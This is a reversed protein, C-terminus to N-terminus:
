LLIGRLQEAVAQPFNDLETYHGEGVLVYEGHVLHGGRPVEPRDFINKGHQLVITTNALVSGLDLERIGPHHSGARKTIRRHLDTDELKAMEAKWGKRSELLERTYNRATGCFVPPLDAKPHGGRGYCHVVMGTDLHLRRFERIGSLRHGRMYAGIAMALRMPSQFDDDDTTLVLQGTCAKLAANRKGSPYPEQTPVLVAGHSAAVRASEIDNCHHAVVLEVMWHPPVRASLLVPLTAALLKPRYHSTVIWSAVSTVVPM